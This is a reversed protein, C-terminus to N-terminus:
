DMIKDTSDQIYKNFQPRLKKIDTGTITSWEHLLRDKFNSLAKVQMDTLRKQAKQASLDRILQSITLLDGQPPVKKIKQTWYPEDKELHGPTRRLNKIM